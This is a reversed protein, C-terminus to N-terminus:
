RVPDFTYTSVECGSVYSGSRYGRNVGQSWWWYNVSSYGSSTYTNVEEPQGYRNIDEVQECECVYNEQREKGDIVCTQGGFLASAQNCSSLVLIMLVLSFTPRM